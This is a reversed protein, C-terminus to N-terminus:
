SRDGQWWAGAAGGLAERLSGEKTPIVTICFRALVECCPDAWVYGGGRSM